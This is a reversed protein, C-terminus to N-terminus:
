TWDQQIYSFIVDTNAIAAETSIYLTGAQQPLVVKDNFVFTEEADVAHTYFLYLNGSGSSPSVASGSQTWFLNCELATAAHKNTVVLSLITFIKDTTTAVLTAPTDAINSTTNHFTTKLIESGSGSPYAM